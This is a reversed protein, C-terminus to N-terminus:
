KTSPKYRIATPSKNVANCIEQSTLGIDTQQKKLVQRIERKCLKKKAWEITEPKNAIARLRQLLCLSQHIASLFHETIENYNEVKRHIM